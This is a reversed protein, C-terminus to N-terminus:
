ECSRDILYSDAVIAQCLSDFDIEVRASAKPLLSHSTFGPITNIELLYPEGTSSDVMWDVRSLVQCGLARHASLSLTQIHALLKEPLAIDFLYQTDDDLYKAQYDYFERSTRIECVPLAQDGLIGVTLEPGTILQEVLALGYKEVVDCASKRLAEDTRVLITDVSSGSSVPKVVVPLSVHDLLTDVNEQCAVVYDPTPLDSSIFQQKARVKDMALMSAAQGCGSYRKGRQNLIGQLTGDEGFSGHLAIFVFDDDRDLASLNSTDIDRQEVRHGLRQLAQTVSDGSQLSVAREENDGGALVTIDLSQISPTTPTSEHQYNQTMSM